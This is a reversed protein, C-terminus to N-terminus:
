QKKISNSGYKKSSSDHRHYSKHKQTPIHGTKLSVDCEPMVVTELWRQIRNSLSEKTLDQAKQKLELTSEMLPVFPGKCSKKSTNRGNKGSTNKVKLEKESNKNAEHPTHRQKIQLPNKLISKLNPSMSSRIKSGPIEMANMEASISSQSTNQLLKLFENNSCYTGSKRFSPSLDQQIGAYCDRSSKKSVCKTM